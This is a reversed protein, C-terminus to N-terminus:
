QPLEVLRSLDSVEGLFGTKQAAALFKQFPELTIESQFKMRPWCRDLLEPSIPRTTELAIEERLIKKAEEPHTNIWNTLEQHAQLVKKALEPKARLFAKSSVLITTLADEEQLFISGKAELELRSVWPEVTWVADIDGNQFLTLQDPNHTPVVFVDGGTQTVKFKQDTLWARAAVDQTNGLQPTALKKGKFDAPTKIRGDGPVVLAAGGLTAGAIVRIEEGKSKAHANIAPNPGVYSLDLTDAFIAEMASPGANFTFWEIKVDKGLREEFWGKQQRTLNHAILGHAHTVNPFHGIRLVTQSSQQKEESCSLSVFVLLLCFLFVKIKM